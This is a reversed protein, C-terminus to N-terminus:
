GGLKAARRPPPFKHGPRRFIQYGPSPPPIITTGATNSASKDKTGNNPGNNLTTRLTGGSGQITATLVLILTRMQNRGGRSLFWRGDSRLVEPPTGHIQNMLMGRSKINGFRRSPRWGFEPCYRRFRERNLDGGPAPGRILDESQPIHKHSCLDSCHDHFRGAIVPLREVVQDLVDQRHHQDLSLGGPINM